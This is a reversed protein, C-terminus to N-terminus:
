AHEAERVPSCTVSNWDAAAMLEAWHSVFLLSKATKQFFLLGSQLQNEFYIESNPAISFYEFVDGKTWFPATDKRLDSEFFARHDFNAGCRDQWESVNVELLMGQKMKSPKLHGTNRSADLEQTPPEAGQVVM